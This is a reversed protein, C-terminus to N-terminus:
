ALVKTTTFFAITPSAAIIAYGSYNYARGWTSVKTKRFVFEQVKILASLSILFVLIFTFVPLAFGGEWFAAEIPNRYVIISQTQNMM